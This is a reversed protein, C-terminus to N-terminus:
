IFHHNKKELRQYNEQCCHTTALKCMMVSSTKTVGTVEFLIYAWPFYIIEEGTENDLFKYQEWYVDHDRFGLYSPTFTLFLYDKFNGGVNAEAVQGKM